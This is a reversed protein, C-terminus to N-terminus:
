RKPNAGYRNDDTGEIALLFILWYFGIVPVLWVLIWKGSRGIDHLRRVTVALMPILVAMMYLFGCMGHIRVVYYQPFFFAIKYLPAVIGYSEDVPVTRWLNDIFMATCMIIVHILTFMWYERRRARGTFDNYQRLVKVYWEM